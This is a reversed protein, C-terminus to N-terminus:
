RWATTTRALGASGTAAVVLIAPSSLSPAVNGFPTANLNCSVDARVSDGTRASSARSGHQRQWRVGPDEHRRRRDVHAAREITQAGGRDAHELVGFAVLVAHAAERWALTGTLDHFAYGCNKPGTGINWSCTFHLSPRLVHDCARETRQEGDGSRV